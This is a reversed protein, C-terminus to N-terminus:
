EPRGTRAPDLHIGDPRELLAKLNDTLNQVRENRVFAIIQAPEFLFWKEEFIHVLTEAIEDLRRPKNSPGLRTKLEGLLSNSLTAAAIKSLRHNHPAILRRFAERRSEGEPEGARHLVTAAKMGSLLRKARTLDSESDRCDHLLTPLFRLEDWDTRIVLVKWAGPVPEEGTGRDSTTGVMIGDSFHIAGSRELTRFNLVLPESSQFRQGEVYYGGDETPGAKEVTFVADDQARVYFGALKTRSTSPRLWLLDRVLFNVEEPRAAWGFVERIVAFLGHNADARLASTTAPGHFEAKIAGLDFIALSPFRTHKLSTKGFTRRIFEKVCDNGRGRSDPDVDNLVQLFHRGDAFRALQECVVRIEGVSNDDKALALPRGEVFYHSTLSAVFKAIHHLLNAPENPNFSDVDMDQKPSNRDDLKVLNQGPKQFYDAVVRQLGLTIKRTRQHGRGILDEWSPISPESTLGYEAIVAKEVISLAAILAVACQIKPAYVDFELETPIM